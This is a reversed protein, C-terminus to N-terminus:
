YPLHWPSIAANLRLTEATRRAEPAVTGRVQYCEVERIAAPKRTSGHNMMALSVRDQADGRLRCAYVCPRRLYIRLM